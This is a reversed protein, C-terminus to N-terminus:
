AARELIFLLDTHKSTLKGLSLAQLIKVLLRTCFGVAGKGFPQYGGDGREERIVFNYRQCFQRIGSRSVAPHYYTPYPAYGPKGAKKAGLIYRYYFVHFWHPTVRTVFGRVSNPDPIKIILLTGPRSWAAFNNLAQDAHEVHELVFSNYIVDFRQGGLDVSCLDGVIGQDLDRAVNKRIELAQQDLDVGTLTFNVGKLKLPWRQGCGAELIQLTDGDGVKDRIYREILAVEQEPSELQQLPPLPEQKARRFVRDM